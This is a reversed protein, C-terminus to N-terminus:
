SQAPPEKARHLCRQERSCLEYVAEDRAGSLGQHRVTGVDHGASRFVETAQRGLNEDLKVKM